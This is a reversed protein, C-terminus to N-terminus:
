MQLVAKVFCPACNGDTKKQPASGCPTEGLDDEEEENTDVKRISAKPDEM